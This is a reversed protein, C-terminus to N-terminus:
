SARRVAPVPGYFEAHTLKLAPLIGEDLTRSAPPNTGRLWHGVAVKSVGCAKALEARSM